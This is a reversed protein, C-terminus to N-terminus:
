RRDQHPGVQDDRRLHGRGDELGDVGRRSAHAGLGLLVFRPQDAPRTPVKLGTDGPSGNTPRYDYFNGGETGGKVFVALVPVTSTFDVLKGDANFTATIPGYTGSM